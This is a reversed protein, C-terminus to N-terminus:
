TRMGILPPAKTERKGARSGENQYDTPRTTSSCKNGSVAMDGIIAGLLDSGLQRVHCRRARGRVGQLIPGILDSKRGTGIHIRANGTDMLVQWESTGPSFKLSLVYSMIRHTEQRSLVPPKLCCFERFFIMLEPCRTTPSLLALQRAHLPSRASRIVDIYESYVPDGTSRYCLVHFLQEASNYLEGEHELPHDSQDYLNSLQGWQHLPNGVLIKNRNLADRGCQAYM